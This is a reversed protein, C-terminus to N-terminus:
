ILMGGDVGIIQGTVYESLDSALYLATNAIDSPKGIRKMKISDMREKFIEDSLDKVMDTEIFGPAIANVRINHEALEKSSSQTIGIVASKSGGYVVQGKNGNTGIISSINIISGGGNKVMFPTVYQMTYIIGFTNVGFVNEILDTNIMRLFADGLIGANNVLIDITKTESHIEKFAEKTSTPDKVDFYVNQIKSNYKEGLEKKLVDLNGKKRSALILDAGEEAFKTAIAKGIGRNAGTIIAKKNKLM